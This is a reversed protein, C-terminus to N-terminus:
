IWRQGRRVMQGERGGRKWKGGEEGGERGLLEAHDEPCKTETLVKLIYVSEGIAVAQWSVQREVWINQRLLFPSFPSAPSVSLVTFHFM